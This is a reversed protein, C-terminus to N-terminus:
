RAPSVFEILNIELESNVIGPTELILTLTQGVGAMGETDLVNEPDSDPTFDIFVYGVPMTELHYDEKNEASLMDWVHRREIVGARELSVRDVIGRAPARTGADVFTKLLLGRYVNGLPLSIRQDTTVIATRIRTIASEKMTWFDRGGEPLVELPVQHLEVDVLPVGTASGFATLTKTLAGGEVLNEETGWHIELNLLEFDPAILTSAMGMDKDYDPTVLNVTLGVRFDYTGLAASVAVREPATGKLLWELVYVSAPIVAKINEAGGGRVGTLVLRRILTAPNEAQAM